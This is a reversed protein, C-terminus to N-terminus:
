FFMQYLPVFLPETVGKPLLIRLAVEFFFFMFLMAGVALSAAALWSARGLVRVYGLLFLPIAVYVGVVQVAATLVLMAIVTIWFMGQAERHIFVRRAYPGVPAARLERVLIAGACLFIGLSLWFPFAGGGPGSMPDWGIPLMAGHWMFYASLAMLGAATTLEVKRM